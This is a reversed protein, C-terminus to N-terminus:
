MQDVAKDSIEKINKLSKTSLGSKELGDSGYYTKQISKSVGVGDSTIKKVMVKKPIGKNDHVVTIQSVEQNPAVMDKLDAFSQSMGFTMAGLVCLLVTKKM